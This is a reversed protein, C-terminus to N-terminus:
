ANRLSKGAPNLVRSGSFPPSLTYIAIIDSTSDNFIKQIDGSVLLGTHELTGRDGPPVVIPNDRVGQALGSQTPVRSTEGCLNCIVLWINAQAADLLPSM